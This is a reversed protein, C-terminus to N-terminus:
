IIRVVGRQSRHLERLVRDGDAVALVADEQFQDVGRRLHHDVLHQRQGFDARAERPYLGALPDPVDVPSEGVINTIAHPTQTAGGGM